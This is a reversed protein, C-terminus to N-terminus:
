NVKEDKNENQQIIYNVLESHLLQFVCDDAMIQKNIREKVIFTLFDASEVHVTLSCDSTLLLVKLM